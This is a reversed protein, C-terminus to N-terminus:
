VTGKWALKKVRRRHLDPEQSWELQVVASREFGEDRIATVRGPRHAASKVVFSLALKSGFPMVDEQRSMVGPRGDVSLVRLVVDRGDGRGRNRAEAQVAPPNDDDDIPVWRLDWRPTPTRSRWFTLVSLVLSLASIILAWWAVDVDTFKGFGVAARTNPWRSPM